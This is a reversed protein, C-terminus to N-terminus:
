AYRVGVCQPTRRNGHARNGGLDILRNSKSGHQRQKEAVPDRRARELRETGALLGDQEGSTITPVIHPHDLSAALQSERLFRRRFPEDEALPAALMKLAVSRGGALSKALYVSGM